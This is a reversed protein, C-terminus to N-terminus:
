SIDIIQSLRGSIWAQASQVLHSSKVEVDMSNEADWSDPLLAYRMPHLHPGSPPNFALNLDCIARLITWPNSIPRSFLCPATHAQHIALVLHQVSRLHSRPLPRYRVAVM